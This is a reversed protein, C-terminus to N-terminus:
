QKYKQAIDSADKSTMVPIIEFKILDSWNAIWEDFLRENGCEVLQFCRNLNTDVWSDIYKLGDPMMRGSENLRGYIKAFSDREFTEIVMFLM